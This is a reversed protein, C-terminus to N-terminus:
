GVELKRKKNEKHAKLVIDKIRKDFSDNEYKSLNKQIIDLPTQKLEIDRINLKAKANILMEVGYYDDDEKSYWDVILRENLNEFEYWYVIESKFIKFKNSEVWKGSVKNWYRKRGKGYDLDNNSGDDYVGNEFLENLNGNWYNIGIVRSRKREFGM